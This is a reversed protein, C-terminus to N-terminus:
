SCRRAFLPFVLHDGPQGTPPASHHGPLHFVLFTGDKGKHMVSPVHSRLSMMLHHLYERTHSHHENSHSPAVAAPPQEPATISQTWGEVGKESVESNQLLVDDTSEVLAPPLTHVPPQNPEAM